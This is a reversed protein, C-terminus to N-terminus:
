IEDTLTMNLFLGAIEPSFQTGAGRRIEAVAEAESLPSRYPCEGTMSAYADAVAIIRAQLSIEEGKLGRPYGGGDWREQHELVFRAIDTFETSLNLIRYGIEPHKRIETWEDPTLAAPKNLIKDDVGIKGIDHMLGAIRIQKVVDQGLKMQVAIRECLACVKLAHNRERDCKEYLTNMILDIMRNKMSASEYLKNRYMRDEATKFVDQMNEHHVTKTAHGFSISVGLAGAKEKAALAEIRGVVEEAEDPGTGPLLIVFEDGGLRAVIDGSRCGKMLVGATKVLLEDGLLHGFSDNILKLGNVDSIILTLPLNRPSDLRVLEEEFFRRNYLGTLKDHYSLYEIEDQARKQETIDTMVTLCAQELQNEILEGSLLGYLIEGNKKRVKVELDRLAHHMELNRVVEARITEDVYLKLEAGTKGVVEERTYGLKALFTANVDIIRGTRVSSVAMLAPNNNFIKQFRDLLAQEISLDKTIGFIVERGDWEGKWVRSQVSMLSGNKRVMPMSCADSIGAVMEAVIRRVESRRSEPHLDLINMALLEEASYGLKRVAAHNAYQIEGVPDTILILDDMSEFFSRYNRESNRLREEVRKRETVDREVFLVSTSKGKSDKLATSTVEVFFRSGDRRIVRYENAMSQETGTLLKCINETMMAHCSPDVHDIAWQGVLTDREESTYGYMAALKDSVFQLRGDLSIIGVGDPSATLIAEWTETNKLLADGTQVPVTGAEMPAIVSSDNKKNNANSGM